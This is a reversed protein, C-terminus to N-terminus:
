GFARAMAALKALSLDPSRWVNRAVDLLLGPSLPPRVFSSPMPPGWQAMGARSVEHVGMPQDATFVDGDSYHEHKDGFPDQWYDFEGGPGRNVILEISKRDKVANDSFSKLYAGIEARNILIDGEVVYRGSGPPIEPLEAVFADVLAPDDPNAIAAQFVTRIRDNDAESAAGEAVMLGLGFALFCAVASLLRQGIM